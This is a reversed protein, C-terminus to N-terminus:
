FGAAFDAALRGSFFWVISTKKMHQFLEQLRRNQHASPQLLRVDIYIIHKDWWIEGNVGEFSQLYQLALKYDGYTISVLIYQAANELSFSFFKGMQSPAAFLDPTACIPHWSAMTLPLYILKGGAKKERGYRRKEDVCVGVEAPAAWYLLLYQALPQPKFSLKIERPNNARTVWADLRWWLGKRWVSM